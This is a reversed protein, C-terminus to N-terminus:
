LLALPLIIARFIHSSQPPLLIPFGRRQAGRCLAFTMPGGRGRGWCLRLRPSGSCAGRSGSAAPRRSLQRGVESSRPGGQPPGLRAAQPRGVGGLRRFSSDELRFSCSCDRCRGRAGAGGGGRTGPAVLPDTYPRTLGSRVWPSEADQGPRHSMGVLQSGGRAALSESVLAITATAMKRGDRGGRAGCAGAGEATERSRPM